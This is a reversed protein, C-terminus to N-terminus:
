LIRYISRCPMTAVPIDIAKKSSELSSDKELRGESNLLGIMVKQDKLGRNVAEVLSPESIEKYMESLFEPDILGELRQLDQEVM